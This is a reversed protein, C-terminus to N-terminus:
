LARKFLEEFALSGNWDSKLDFAEVADIYEQPPSYYDDAIYHYILSPSAYIIGMQGPVWLESMGLLIRGEPVDMYVNSRGCISCGHIGRMPNVRPNRLLMQRLKLIFSHQPFRKPFEHEADLWGINLVGDLKRSSAYEYPSLDAYYMP